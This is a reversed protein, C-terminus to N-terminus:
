APAAPELGTAGAMRRLETAESQNRAEKVQTGRHIFYLTLVEANDRLIARLPPKTPIPARLRINRNIKCSRHVRVANVQDAQRVSIGRNPRAPRGSVEHHCQRGTEEGHM